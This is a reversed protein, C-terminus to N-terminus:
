DVKELELELYYEIDDGTWGNDSYEKWLEEFCCQCLIKEEEEKTIIYVNNKNCNIKDNCENCIEIDSDNEM